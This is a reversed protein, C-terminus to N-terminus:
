VQWLIVYRDKLVRGLWQVAFHNFVNRLTADGPVTKPSQSLMPRKTLCIMSPEKGWDTSFLAVYNEFFSRCAPRRSICPSDVRFYNVDAMLTPQFLQFLDGFGMVSFSLAPECQFASPMGNEHPPLPSLWRARFLMPQAVLTRRQSTVSHRLHWVRESIM